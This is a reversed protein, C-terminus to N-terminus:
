VPREIFDVVPHNRRCRPCESYKPVTARHPYPARCTICLIPQNALLRERTEAGESTVMAAIGYETLVARAFGREISERAIRLRENREYPSM